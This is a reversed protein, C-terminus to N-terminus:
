NIIIICIMIFNLVILQYSINVKRIIIQNIHIKIDWYLDCLRVYSGKSIRVCSYYLHSQANYRLAVSKAYDESIQCCTDDPRLHDLRTQQICQVVSVSYQLVCMGFTASFSLNPDIKMTPIEDCQVVCVCRCVSFLVVFHGVTRPLPSYSEFSLRISFIATLIM